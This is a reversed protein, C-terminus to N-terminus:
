FIKMHNMNAFIHLLVNLRHKTVQEMQILINNQNKVKDSMNKIEKPEEQFYM